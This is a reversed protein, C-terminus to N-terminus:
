KMNKCKKENTKAGVPKFNEDCSIYRKFADTFFNFQILLKKYM